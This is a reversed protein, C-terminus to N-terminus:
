KKGCLACLVCLGYEYCRKGRLGCLVCLPNLILLNFVPLNFKLRKRQARQASQPELMDM